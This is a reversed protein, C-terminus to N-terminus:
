KLVLCVISQLEQIAKLVEEIDKKTAIENLQM